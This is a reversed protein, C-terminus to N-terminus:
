RFESVRMSLIRVFSILLEIMLPLITDSKLSWKEWNQM